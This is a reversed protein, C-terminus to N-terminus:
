KSGAYNKNARQSLPNATFNVASSTCAGTHRMAIM